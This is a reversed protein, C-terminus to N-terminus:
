GSHRRAVKMNAGTVWTSLRAVEITRGGAVVCEAKAAALGARGLAVLMETTFGHALMIAETAGDRSAVLL